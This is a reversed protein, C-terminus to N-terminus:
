VINVTGAPLNKALQLCFCTRCTAMSTSSNTTQQNAAYTANRLYDLQTSLTVCTTWSLWAPLDLAAPENHIFRVYGTPASSKCGASQRVSHASYLEPHVQGGRETPKSQFGKFCRFPPLRCHRGGYHIKGKATHLSHGNPLTQPQPPAASTASEYRRRSERCALIQASETHINFRTSQADKDRWIVDVSEIHKLQPLEDQILRANGPWQVCLRSQDYSKHATNASHERLRRGSSTGVRQTHIGIARSGTSLCPSWSMQTLM